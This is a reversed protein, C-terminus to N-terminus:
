KSGNAKMKRITKQTHEQLKQVNEQTQKKMADMASVADSVVKKQIENELRQKEAKKQEVETHIKLRKREADAIIGAAKEQAAKEITEANKLKMEIVSKDADIKMQHELQIGELANKIKEEKVEAEGIIRFAEAQASDRIEEAEKLKAEAAAKDADLKKQVEAFSKEMEQKLTAFEDQRIKLEATLKEAKRIQEEAIKREQELKAKQAAELREKEKLDDKVSQINDTHMKKTTLAILWDNDAKLNNRGGRTTSTIGFWAYSESKPPMIGSADSVSMYYISDGAHASFTHKDYPIEEATLNALRLKFIITDEEEFRVAEDLYIDYTGCRYRNKFIARETGALTDPYSEKLVEYRKAIDILSVLRAPTVKPTATVVNDSYKRVNSNKGFVVSAYAEKDSQVLYLIYLKRNYTVTLTATAGDKLASVNFYYSGSQAAIQFDTGKGDISINKGAIETIKSPFQITTVGDNKKVYIKYIEGQMLRYEVYQNQMRIEEPSLEKESEAAFASTFGISGALFVTMLQKSLNM